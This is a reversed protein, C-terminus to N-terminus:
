IQIDNENITWSQIEIGLSDRYTVTFECSLTDESFHFSDSNEFTEYLIEFDGSITLYNENEFEDSTLEENILTRSKTHANAQDTMYSQVYDIIDPRKM